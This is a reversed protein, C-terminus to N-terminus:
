YPPLRWRSNQSISVMTCTAILCNQEIYFVNGYFIATSLMAPDEIPFMLVAVLSNSRVRDILAILQTSQTITRSIYLRPGEWKERAELLTIYFIILRLDPGM